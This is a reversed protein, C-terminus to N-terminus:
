RADSGTFCADLAEICAASPRDFHIGRSPEGAAAPDIGRAFLYFAGGIHREYDYDALRLRLHRHLALLYLLYQLQYGHRRVAAALRPPSYEDGNRGLLNTKYDIVYWCGQWEAVLDIFGRLHGDVPEDQARGFPRSYGHAELANALAGRALRRAPLHFELEPLPQALDAIRWTHGRGPGAAATLPATWTNEVMHTAVERWAPDIHHRALGEGVVADLPTGRARREFMEHLCSGVRAGTPFTFPSREIAIGGLLSEGADELAADVDHDPRELAEHDQASLAVGGRGALASYSTMQRVRRLARDLRRVTLTPNAVPDPDVRPAQSGLQVETAAIGNPCRKVLGNVHARWADADMAKAAARTRALAAVPDQSADADQGPERLLWSLPAFESYNARAWTVVCRLRARTLAVYFLRVEESFDELREKGREADTPALHLVEPLGPSDRDHFQVAWPTPGGAGAADWAFPVFVIPFELGKSRHVTVIKVLQEDSELRLQAVEDHPNVRARRRSLWAALATPTLRGAAEAAQLLDALHMVNTLRRAGDAHRLLQRAGGNPTQGAPWPGADFSRLLRRVMGAVGGAQWTARWEALREKWVKWADEDDALRALEAADLGFLDGALAGRMRGLSNPSAVAWLLRELQEAERSDFVDDVGIEVSRVGRRALAARVQRGQETKRVLVAIDSGTLPQGGVSAGGEHSLALLRAIEDAAQAAALPTTENKKLRKKGQGPILRFQLPPAEEEGTLRLGSADQSLAPTAATFAINPLGFPHACGFVTNIASVLPPVSRYNKALTLRAGDAVSASAHLYAFVDASRFRYISQKPDGVIVMSGADGYISQFIEAQVRDTDQYEDILAFPYRRRIQAGLGPARSLAAHVTLLLDDYGLLRDEQIRRAVGERTAELAARRAQPLWEGYAGLLTEAAHDLAALDSSLGGPRPMAEAMKTFTAKADFAVALPHELAALVPELGATGEAARASVRAAELAAEWGAEKATLTEMAADDLPAAGRIELGPKGLHSAVWDTLNQSTGFLDLGPVKPLFRKARAFQVRMRPAPVMSRRWHDRVEASMVDFGDGSVEFGFPLGCDFAFDNIVRQCFGHITLVNARDLDLMAPELRRGVEAAPINLAAWRAMLDHAQESGGREGAATSQIARLTRRLRDRLEDTAAVTFTVVLLDSIERGAEVILRAALTTLAYTKGTGASAEILTTGTGDLPLNLPTMTTPATM